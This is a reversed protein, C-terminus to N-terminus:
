SHDSFCIEYFLILDGHIHQKSAKIHYTYQISIIKTMQADASYM